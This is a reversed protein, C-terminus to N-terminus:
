SGKEQLWQDVITYPDAERAAVREAARQLESSPLRAALRDRYMEQLRISWNQVSADRSLRNGRVAALVAAVGEGTLAVCRVVPRGADRCDKELKEIGPEDAKNLVFVDAIEMVGAKIVQIDDGFGPALVLATVDAVRAVEIEGQGVGVTEIIITDFGAADLLVIMDSTAAAIGGLRGRAAMSRIFVGDDAHHALMRIRDGLIAGGSFPSSPDVAIVAVRQGQARLVRIFQDVLTSKGVGPPGTVGVTHSRGGNAFLASLLSRAAPDRNEIFSAARAIARV